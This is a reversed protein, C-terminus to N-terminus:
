TRDHFSSIGASLAGMGLDAALAAMGALAVLVRGLSADLTVLLLVLVLPLAAGLALAAMRGLRPAIDGEIVIRIRFEGQTALVDLFFATITVLGIWTLHLERRLAHRAVGLVVGVFALISLFTLGAVLFRILAPLTPDDEIVSQRLERQQALVRTGLAFLAMVVSVVLLDSFRADTAMLRAINMGSPQPRIAGPAVIRAPPLSPLEIMGLLRAELQCSFMRRGIAMGAVRLLVDRLNGQRPIAITAVLSLILVRARETLITALAM